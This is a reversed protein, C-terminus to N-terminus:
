NLMEINRLEEFRQYGLEGILSEYYSVRSEPVEYTTLHIEYDAVYDYHENFQNIVEQVDEEFLATVRSKIYIPALKEYFAAHYELFEESNYHRENHKFEDEILEQVVIDLEEKGATVKTFNENHIVYITEM